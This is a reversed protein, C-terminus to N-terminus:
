RGCMGPMANKMIVVSNDGHDPREDEPSFQCGKIIRM